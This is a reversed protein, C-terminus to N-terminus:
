GGTVGPMWPIELGRVDVPEEAVAGDRVLYSRV